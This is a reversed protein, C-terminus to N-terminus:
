GKLIWSVAREFVGEKVPKVEKATEELWEKFECPCGQSKCVVTRVFEEMPMKKPTYEKTVGDVEIMLGNRGFALPHARGESVKRPKTNKM